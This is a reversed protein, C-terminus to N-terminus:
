IVALKYRQVAKESFCSCNPHVFDPNFENLDKIYDDWTMKEAPYDRLRPEFGLNEAVAAMYGLDNCARIAGSASGEMNAQCRDEGRQYLGIPPYFFLIKKM